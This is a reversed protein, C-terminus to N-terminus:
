IEFENEDNEFDIINKENRIKGVKIAEQENVKQRLGEKWANNNNEYTDEDLVIRDFNDMLRGGLAGFFLGVLSVNNKIWSGTKKMNNIDDTLLVKYEQGDDTHCKIPVIYYGQKDMFPTYKDVEIGRTRIRKICRNQLEGSKLKKIKGSAIEREYRAKEDFVVEQVEQSLNEMMDSNINRTFRRIVDKYNM